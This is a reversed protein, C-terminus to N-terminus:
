RIFRKLASGVASLAPLYSDAVSIGHLITGLILMIFLAIQKGKETSTPIQM